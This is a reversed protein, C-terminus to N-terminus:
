DGVFKTCFYVIKAVDGQGIWIKDIKTGYCCFCCDIYAFCCFIMVYFLSEFSNKFELKGSDDM